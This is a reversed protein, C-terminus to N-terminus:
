SPDLLETRSHTLIRQPCRIDAALAQHIKLRAKPEWISPTTEPLHTDVERFATAVRYPNRQSVLREMKAEFREALGKGMVLFAAEPFTELCSLIRGLEGWGPHLDPATECGPLLKAALDSSPVFIRGDQGSGNELAARLPPDTALDLSLFLKWLPVKRMERELVELLHDALGELNSREFWPIGGSPLQGCPRQPGVLAAARALVASSAEGLGEGQPGLELVVPTSTQPCGEVVVLDADVLITRQQFLDLHGATALHSEKGNVSLEAWWPRDDLKSNAEVRAGHRVLGVHHTTSLIRALASALDSGVGFPHVVIEQPHYM